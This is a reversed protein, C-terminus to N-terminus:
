FNIESLSQKTRRFNIKIKINELIKIEVILM